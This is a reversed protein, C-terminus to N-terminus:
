GMIRFKILFKIWMSTAKGNEVPPQFVFQQVADLASDQFSVPGLSSLVTAKEVRGYENVFLEVTVSGEIGKELEEKPYVPETMKLIVYDESYPVDHSTQVTRIDFDELESVDLKEKETQKKVDRVSPRPLENGETLELDVSTMADIRRQREINVIDKNDPIITIEPMLRLEGKWGVQKEFERFPIRDYTLFLLTMLVVAVPTLYYLRRRYSQERQWYGGPM